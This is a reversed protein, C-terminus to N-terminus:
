KHSGHDQLKQWNVLHYKGFYNRCYFTYKKDVFRNNEIETWINENKLKDKFASIFPVQNHTEVKLKFCERDRIKLKKKEIIIGVLEYIYNSRQNNTM